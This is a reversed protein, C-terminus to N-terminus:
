LVKFENPILKEFCLKKTKKKENQCRPCKLM